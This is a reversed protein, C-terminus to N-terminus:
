HRSAFLSRLQHGFNKAQYDVHDEDLTIIEAEKRNNGVNKLKGEESGSPSAQLSKMKDTLNMIGNEADKVDKFSSSASTAVVSNGSKLTKYKGSM